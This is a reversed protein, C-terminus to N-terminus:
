HCIVEEKLKKLDENYDDYGRWYYCSSYEDANEQGEPNDIWKGDLSRHCVLGSEWLCTKCSM